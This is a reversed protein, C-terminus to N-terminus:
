CKIWQANFFFWFNLEKLFSVHFLKWTKQKKWIMAMGEDGNLIVLVCVYSYNVVMIKHMISMKIRDNMSNWWCTIKNLKNLEFPSVIKKEHAKSHWESFSWYGVYINNSLFSRSYMHTRTKSKWHISIM